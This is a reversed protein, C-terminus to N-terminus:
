SFRLIGQYVRNRLSPKYSKAASAISALAVHNDIDIDLKRDVCNYIDRFSSSLRLLEIRLEEETPREKFKISKRAVASGLAMVAAREGPGDGISTVSAVSPESLLSSFLQKKYEAPTVHADRTYM